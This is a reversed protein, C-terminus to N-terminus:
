SLKKHSSSWVGRKVLIQNGAVKMLAQMQSSRYWGTWAGITMSTYRGNEYGTM